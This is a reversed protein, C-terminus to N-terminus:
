ETSEALATIKRRDLDRSLAAQGIKGEFYRRLIKFGEQDWNNTARLCQYVGENFQVSHFLICLMVITAYDILEGTESSAIVLAEILSLDPYDSVGSQRVEFLCMPFAPHDLLGDFNHM